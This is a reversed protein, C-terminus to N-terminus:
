FSLNPVSHLFNESTVYKKFSLKFYPQFFIGMYEWKRERGLYVVKHLIIFSM